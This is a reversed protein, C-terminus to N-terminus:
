AETLRVHYFAGDMFCFDHELFASYYQAISVCIPRVPAALGLAAYLYELGNFCDCLLFHWLM